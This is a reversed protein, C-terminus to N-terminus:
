SNPLAFTMAYALMTDKKWDGGVKIQTHASKIESVKKVCNDGEAAPNNWMEQILQARRAGVTASYAKEIEDWLGKPNPNNLDLSASSLGTLVTLSLLQLITACSRPTKHLTIFGNSALSM